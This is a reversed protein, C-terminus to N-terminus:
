LLISNLTILKSFVGFDNDEEEVETESDIGAIPAPDQRFANGGLKPYNLAIEQLYRRLKHGPSQIDNM